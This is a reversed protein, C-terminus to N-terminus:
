KAGTEDGDEEDDMAPGNLQESLDRVQQRLRRIESSATLGVLMVWFLVIGMSQFMVQPAPELRGFLGFLLIGLGVLMTLISIAFTM